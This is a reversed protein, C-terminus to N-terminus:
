LLALSEKTPAATVQPSVGLTLCYKKHRAQKHGLRHTQYVAHKGPARIAGTPGSLMIGHLSVPNGKHDPPALLIISTHRQPTHPSAWGSRPPQHNRSEPMGQEERQPRSRLRLPAEQASSQRQLQLAKSAPGYATHSPGAARPHVDQPGATELEQTPCQSTRSIM